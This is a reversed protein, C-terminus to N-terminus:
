RAVFKNARRRMFKDLVLSLRREYMRSSIKWASVRPIYVEREKSGAKVRKVLRLPEHRYKMLKELIKREQIFRTTYGRSLFVEDSLIVKHLPINTKIGEIVFEDLARNMRAIVRERSDGWVILKMILPDYHPPVEYGEYVGSEVRVGLGSPPLYKTIIGPSPRFNNYPDEANIRVELSHGRLGIENQSYRLEEGAAIWLQEEVIDIRTVMETVPHEVQIRSNVELFYFNKTEPIYLFEITGANVYKVAKAVKVGLETVREREEESIAPSPAEELLKQFRRQISCEREFLHVINNHKDALVQVEIHKARPFYKEVYVEAKGFASSALSMASEVAKVVDEPGWCISMGIGGGGLVPKIVVPYGVRDAAILADDVDSISNLPGPIVPIGLSHLLRKANLKDGTVKQVTEPPGVFAIGEEEVRKVFEPVQSLFGYGPHIAEANCRKAISIIKEVNLYSDKPEPGGVLYAEDAMKVHLSEKDVSSYITAVKIGLEKATRIVRVAIEGRNAVLIKNFPKNTM